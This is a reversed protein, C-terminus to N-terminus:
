IELVCMVDGVPVEEGVAAVIEVVTGAEPSELDGTAKATEIEALPEDKAVADGVEKYWQLVTGENMGMAWQPLRVDYRAM